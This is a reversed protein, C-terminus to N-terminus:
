LIMLITMIGCAFDSAYCNADKEEYNNNNKVITLRKMSGSSQVYYDM